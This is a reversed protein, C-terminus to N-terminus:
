KKFFEKSCVLESNLQFLYVIERLAAAIDRHFIVEFKFDNTVQLFNRDGVIVIFTREGRSINFNIVLKEILIITCRSYSSLHYVHLLNECFSTSLTMWPVNRSLVDAAYHFVFVTSSLSRLVITSTLWSLRKRDVMTTSINPVPLLRLREHINISMQKLYGSAAWFVICDNVRWRSSRLNCQKISYIIIIKNSYKSYWIIQLNTVCVGHVYNFIHEHHIYVQRLKSELKFWFAM